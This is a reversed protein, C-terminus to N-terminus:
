REQLMVSLLNRQAAPMVLGFPYGKRRLRSAAEPGWRQCLEASGSANLVPVVYRHAVVPHSYIYVTLSHEVATLFYAITPLREVKIITNEVM